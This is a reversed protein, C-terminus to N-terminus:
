PPGRNPVWVGLLSGSRRPLAWPGRCWSLQSPLATTPRLYSATRTSACAIVSVIAFCRRSSRSSASTTPVSCRWTKSEGPDSQDEGLVYGSARPKTPPSGVCSPQRPRVIGRISGSGASDTKIEGCLQPHLWYRLPTAQVTSLCRTEAAEDRPQVGGCADGLSLGVCQAAHNDAEPYGLIGM